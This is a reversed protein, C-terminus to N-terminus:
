QRPLALTQQTRVSDLTHGATDQLDDVGNRSLPGPVCGGKLRPPTHFAPYPLTPNPYGLGLFASRMLSLFAM